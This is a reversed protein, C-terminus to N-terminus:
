TVWQRLLGLDSILKTLEAALLSVAIALKESILIPFLSLMVVAHILLTANHVLLIVPASPVIFVAVLGQSEDALSTLVCAHSYFNVLIHNWYAFLQEM